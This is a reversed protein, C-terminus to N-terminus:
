LFFIFNFFAIGAACDGSSLINGMGACFKGPPCPQCQEANVLGVKDSFTGPPCPYERESKTGTPCYNGLIHSSKSVIIFSQFYQVHYLESCCHIQM